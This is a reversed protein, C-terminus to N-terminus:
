FDNMLSTVCELAKLVTPFLRKKERYVDKDMQGVWKETVEFWDCDFGDESEIRNVKIEMLKNMHDNTM